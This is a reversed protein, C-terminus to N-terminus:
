FGLIRRVEAAVRATDDPPDYRWNELQGRFPRTIGGQRMMDHFARFKHNGGELEFVHVPKGTSAAESVMNVSDATVVIADALGLYAFYPNPQRGDWIVAPQGELAQRLVAENAAGTRRSTTVLLGAGQRGLAGLGAALENTAAATLRYCTNTGGVLVAVLPRPLHSLEAELRAAEAALLAATLRHLSGLTAIVNAGSLGDHRPAAVLDFHRLPIRPNQLHVNCRAGARRIALSYPVSRRGCSIVLDPWPPALSDSDAGLAALPLPWLNGPLWTWPPRPRLRKVETELGIAQALGLAPNENGASGDSVVWCRGSPNSPTNATM